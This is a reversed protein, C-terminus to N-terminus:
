GERQKRAILDVVWDPEFRLTNRGFKVYELDGDTQQRFTEPFEVGILSCKRGGPTDSVDLWDAASAHSGRCAAPLWCHQRARPSGTAEGGPREAKM